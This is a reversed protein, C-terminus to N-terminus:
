VPPEYDGVFATTDPRVRRNVRDWDDPVTWRDTGPRIPCTRCGAYGPHAGALFEELVTRCDALRFSIVEARGLTASRVLGRRRMEPLYVSKESIPCSRERFTWSRCKVVRGDPLKVPYEQGRQIICPVYDTMEVVHHFTNAWPVGFLVAKGGALELLHLPSGEGMTPVKHHNRLWQRADKGWGALPHTPQLSRVVGPLKRFTETVAGNISPTELPNYCGAGDETFIRAHNFTPMLITGDQTVTEMLVRCFALPGGEVYGIRSLSSHVVIRDGKGIGLSALCARIDNEGVIVTYRLSVDGTEALRKVERYLSAKEEATLPRNLAREMEGFVDALTRTGDCRDLLLGRLGPHSGQACVSRGSTRTVVTCSAKEDVGM